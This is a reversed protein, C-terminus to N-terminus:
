GMPISEAKNIVKSVVIGGLTLALGAFIAILIAVEPSVGGTEDDRALELRVLWYQWLLDLYRLETM